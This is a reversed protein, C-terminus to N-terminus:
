FRVHRCLHSDDHERWNLVLDIKIIECAPDLNRTSQFVKSLYSLFPLYAFNLITYFGHVPLALFYQYAIFGLTMSTTIVGARRLKRRELRKMM